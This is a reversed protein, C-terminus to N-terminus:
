RDSEEVDQESEMMTVNQVRCAFYALSPILVIFIDNYSVMAMDFILEVIVLIKLLLMVSDEIRYKFCIWGLYCYYLIEIKICM